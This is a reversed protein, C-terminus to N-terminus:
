AAPRAQSQFAAKLTQTVPVEPAEIAYSLLGQECELGGLLISPAHIADPAVMWPSFAVHVAQGFASGLHPENPRFRVQANPYGSPRVLISMGHTGITGPRKDSSRRIADILLSEVKEWNPGASGIKDVLESWADDTLPWDGTAAIRFQTRRDPLHRPMLQAWSLQASQKVLRWLVPRAFTRPRKANWQWGTAVIEGGLREFTSHAHLRRSLEALSSGVDRVSFAGYAIASPGNACAGGSVVDAIWADTPLRNIFAPGAYGLVILGDTARFVVSKNALPDHPAGSKSVLRDSVHIGFAPTAVSLVLTM